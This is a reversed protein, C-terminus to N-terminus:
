ACRRTGLGALLSDAAAAASATGALAEDLRGSDMLRRLATTSARLDDLIVTVDQHNQEVMRDVKALTVNAQALTEVVQGDKRIEELLATVQGTLVRMESLAAGAADTVAAITGAARGRFIHGEEVPGSTGPDIEIVVEGVIGKEGLTVTADQCLKATDELQLQVRVAQPLIQMGTVEGMRIGRVQVKDGVRLGEVQSFDAQYMRSGKRLDINKLWLMGWVLVVLAIITVLGVQVENLRGRMPMEGAPPTPAGRVRANLVSGASRPFPGRHVPTGDPADDHAGRRRYRHVRHAGASCRWATPSRSPARCTTRSSSAPSGLGKQQIILDNIADSTIPDLGTTPEDYLIYQPEMVIARALGARKKMGGSPESPLKDEAGELGVQRLCECARERIRRRPWDTHEELMLGINKCISMSDFLAAGQFLFGFRKRLDMLPGHELASVEHGEAWIRGADPELLRVIHKLLVSKGEGSRGIIVLTEGKHILLDTGDLM